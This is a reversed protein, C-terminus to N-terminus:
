SDDKSGVSSAVSAPFLTTDTPKPPRAAHQARPRGAAASVVALLVLLATLALGAADVGGGWLAESLYTLGPLTTLITMAVMPRARQLGVQLVFLPVTVAAAGVPPLLALAVGSDHPSAGQVLFLAGAGLYTLHFRHATVTVPDAGLEGLAKSVLALGSAGAGAVAVLALGAVASRGVGDGGTLRWALAGGVAALAVAWGWARPTPRDGVGLVVALVALALPGIATEVGSALTAPIWALAVYFSLFTLATVANMLWLLRRVRRRDAPNARAGSARGRRVLRLGNFVLASLAFGACSLLLSGSPTLRGSLYGFCGAQLLVSLSILVEAM